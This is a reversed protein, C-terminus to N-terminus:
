RESRMEAKRNKRMKDMKYRDAENILKKREELREAYKKNIEKKKKLLIDKKAMSLFEDKTLVRKM